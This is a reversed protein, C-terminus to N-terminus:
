KSGDLLSDLSPAQQGERYKFLWGRKLKDVNELRRIMYGPKGSMPESDSFDTIKEWNRLDPNYEYLGITSETETPMEIHVLELRSGDYSLRLEIAGEDVFPNMDWLFERYNSLGDFDRDASPELLSLDYGKGGSYRHWWDLYDSKGEGESMSFDFLQVFAGKKSSISLEIVDEESDVVVLGEYKGSEKIPSHWVSGDESTVSLNVFIREAASLDVRFIGARGPKFRIRNLEGAHLPRLQITGGQHIWDERGSYEALIRNFYRLRWVSATPEAHESVTWRAREGEVVAGAPLNSWEFGRTVGGTLAMLEIETGEPYVELDPSVAYSGGNVSPMVLYGDLLDFVPAFGYGNTYQSFVFAVEHEAEPIAIYYDGGRLEHLFDSEELESGDLRLRQESSKSIRLVCPGSIKTNMVGVQEGYTRPYLQTTYGNWANTSRRSMEMGSVEWTLGFAEIESRKLAFRPEPQVFDSRVETEFSQPQGAYEGEWDLFEYGDDPLAVFGIADGMQFLERSQMVRATGGEVAIDDILYGSQVQINSVTLFSMEEARFAVTVEHVGEPINVQVTEGYYPFDYASKVVTGDIMVILDIEGSEEDAVFGISAPGEVTTSFSADQREVGALVSEWFVLDEDDEDASKWWSEMPSFEIEGAQTTQTNSFYPRIVAEDGEAVTLSADYVTEGDVSWYEFWEKASEPIGVKVEGNEADWAYTPVISEAYVMSPGWGSTVQIDGVYGSKGYGSDFEIQAWGGAEVFLSYVVWENTKVSKLTETSGSRKVTFSSRDSDVKLAFSVVSDELVNISISADDSITFSKSGLPTEEASVSWGRPETLDQVVGGDISVLSDSYRAELSWDRVVTFSWERDSSYLKSGWRTWWGSFAEGNSGTESATVTVLEGYAYSEQEPSISAVGGSRASVAIAFESKLDPLRLAHSFSSYFGWDWVSLEWTLECSEGEDLTVDFAKWSSGDFVVEGDKKLVVTMGYPLNYYDGRYMELVGPGSFTGTTTATEDYLGGLEWLFRPVSSYNSYVPRAGEFEWIQGDIESEAEFIAYARGNENVQVSFSAAKDEFPEAWGVFRNGENAVAEVQVTTGPEFFLQDLSTEITGGGNTSTTFLYGEEYGLGRVVYDIFDRRFGGRFPETLEIVLDLDHSGEEIAHARDREPFGEVVEGDVFLRTRMGWNQPFAYLIGPGEVTASLTAGDTIGNLGFVSADWRETSIGGRGETVTWDAGNGVIDVDVLLDASIPGDVVTDIAEPQGEFSKTWGVFEMGAPITPTVALAAGKEVWGEWVPTEYADPDPLAGNTDISVNPSFIEVWYEMKLESLTRPEYNGDSDSRASVSFRHAGEPITLYSGTYNSEATLLRLQYAGIGYGLGFKLRGPGTVEGILVATEGEQMEAPSRWVGDIKEWATTGSLATVYADDEVQTEFWAELEIPGDVVLSLTDTDVIRSGNWGGFEYGEDATATLELSTGGWVRSSEPIGSVSGGTGVKVRVPYGPEFRVNSLSFSEESNFDWTDYDVIWVENRGVPLEIAVSTGEFNDDLRYIREGNVKVDFGDGGTEFDFSLAGPGDLTFRVGPSVGPTMEGSAELKEMGDVVSKTWIPDGITDIALGGVTEKKYFIAVLEVSESPALNLTETGYDRKGVWKWKEFRWGDDATATLNLAESPDLIGGEPMGSVTGQGIIELSVEYGPEWVLDTLQLRGGVEIPFSFAGDSLVRLQFEEYEAEFRYNGFESYRAESGPTKRGLGKLIGPGEGSITITPTPYTNGVEVIDLLLPEGEANLAAVDYDDLPVALSGWELEFVKEGAATLKRHGVVEYFVEASESLEENGEKWRFFRVSEDESWATLKVIEGREYTEKVPNVDMEVGAEDIDLYLGPLVELGDFYLVRSEPGSGSSYLKWSFSTSNEQEGFAFKYDIWEDQPSQYALSDNRGYPLDQAYLNSVPVESSLQYRFRVLHSGTMARQLKFEENMPVSVKLATGNTAGEMEVVELTVGEGAELIWDTDIDTDLAESVSASDIEAFASACFLLIM